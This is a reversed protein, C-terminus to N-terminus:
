ESYHKNVSDRILSRLNRVRRAESALKIVRRLEGLRFAGSAIFLAGVLCVAWLPACYGVIVAVGTKWQSFARQAAGTVLLNACCLALLDADEQASKTNHDPTPLPSSTEVENHNTTSM